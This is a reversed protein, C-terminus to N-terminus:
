VGAVEPYKEVMAVCKATVKEGEDALKELSAFGYRHVDRLHKSLVVLNGGILVLRGFGEHSMNMMPSAMVRTRKEVELGVAKYFMEIRDIIDPDPDGIIPIEKRQEPTVIYPALLEADAKGEWVGYTDQARILSILTKIFPTQEAPIEAEAASM